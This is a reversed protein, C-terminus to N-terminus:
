VYKANENPKFPLTKLIKIKKGNEFMIDIKKRKLDWRTLVFYNIYTSPMTIKENLIEIYAKNAQQDERVQRTFYAREKFNKREKSNMKMRRYGTYRLSSENFWELKTDVDRIDQFDRRNWFLRSFVSNNGEISAQSFPKRPVAYIPAVKNDWLFRMAKSITRKASASGITASCNDTKICDPKEFNNFFQKCADIFCDATEAEIRMYYRLKPEKKFSFGIFHLPQTRGTIFRKVFDAELVREGLRNYITHEPYCLYKAAGKNRGRRQQQAYGLEKMMRGITRLSPTKDNPYRRRYEQAAVTAGTHFEKSDEHIKQCIAKVKELVKRNFKRGAGKPWGRLDKQFDMEKSKTWKIVFDQSMGKRRAIERKSVNGEFYLDNVMKRMKYLKKEGYGDTRSEEGRNAIKVWVMAMVRLKIREVKMQGIVRLVYSLLLKM